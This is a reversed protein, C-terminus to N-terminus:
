SKQQPIVVPLKLIQGEYLIATQLQNLRKVENMYLRLEIHQPAYMSAIAWLTDGKTVVVQQISTENSLYSISSATDVLGRYIFSTFILISVALAIMLDKRKNLFSTRNHDADHYLHSRASYSFYQDYM